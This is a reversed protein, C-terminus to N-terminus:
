QARCELWWRRPPPSTLESNSTSSSGESTNIGTSPSNSPPAYLGAAVKELVKPPTLNFQSQDKYMAYELEKIDKTVDRINSPVNHDNPYGAFMDTNPMVCTNPQYGTSVHIVDYENPGKQVSMSEPAHRDGENSTGAPTGILGPKNREVKITGDM